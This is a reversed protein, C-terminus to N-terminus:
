WVQEIPVVDDVIDKVVIAKIFHATVELPVVIAVAACAGIGNQSLRLITTAQIIGVKAGGGIAVRPPHLYVKTARIGITYEAIAREIIHDDDMFITMPNRVAEDAAGTRATQTAGLLPALAPAIEEPNSERLFLVVGALCGYGDAVPQRPLLTITIAEAGEGIAGIKADVGGGKGIHGSEPLKVWGCPMPEMQALM